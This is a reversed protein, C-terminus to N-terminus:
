TLVRARKGGSDYLFSGVGGQTWTHTVTYEGTTNTSFDDSFGATRGSGDAKRYVQDFLGVLKTVDPDNAANLLADGGDVGTQREVLFHKGPQGSEGRLKNIILDNVYDSGGAGIIVDVPPYTSGHGGGYKPDISTSGTTNPDGFLCEDAIAYTNNRDDNHSCFAGPTAHSIPVTSISGVGKGINKAKEWVTDLRNSGDNSVNVRGNQTKVGSYLATAAAASDTAGQKVYNFDNWAQSPDYNGGHPFTSIWHQVWEPGTQYTPTYDCLGSSQCYKNTAEIHNPGWGDAIMLIIYKADQGYADNFEFIFLFSIFFLLILFSYKSM